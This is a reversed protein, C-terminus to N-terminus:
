GGCTRIGPAHHNDSSYCGTRSGSFLALWKPVATLKMGKAKGSDLLLSPFCPCVGQGEEQLQCAGLAGAASGECEGQWPNLHKRCWPRVGTNVSLLSRLFHSQMRLEVSASNSTTRAIARLCSVDAMGLSVKFLLPQQQNSLTVM